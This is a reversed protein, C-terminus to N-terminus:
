RIALLDSVILLDLGVLKVSVSSSHCFSRLALRGNGARGAAHASAQILFCSAAADPLM